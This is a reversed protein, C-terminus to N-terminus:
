QSSCVIFATNADLAGRAIILENAVLLFARPTKVVRAFVREICRDFIGEVYVDRIVFNDVDLFARWADCSFNKLASQSLSSCGSFLSCLLSRIRKRACAVPPRLPRSRRLKTLWATRFVTLRVLKGSRMASLALSKAGIFHSRKMESELGPQTVATLNRWGFVAAVAAGVFVIIFRHRADEM